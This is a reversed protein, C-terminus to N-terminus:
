DPSPFFGRRSKACTTKWGSDPSRSEPSQDIRRQAEPMLDIGTGDPLGIDSVLVDFQEKAAHKSRPMFLRAGAPRSLRAPAASKTLSRNTDEHDEVLLIRMRNERSRRPSPASSSDAPSRKPWRFFGFHDIGSGRGGSEAVINAMTRKSWRRASPSAWGSDAWDANAGGQEFANFIKPLTEADIGMGTDTIAVRLEVMPKTAATKITLRGGKPTFKM